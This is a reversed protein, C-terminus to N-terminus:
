QDDPSPNPHSSHAVELNFVTELLTLYATQASRRNPNNKQDLGNEIICASCIKDVTIDEGSLCSPTLSDSLYRCM